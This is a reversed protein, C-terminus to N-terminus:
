QRFHVRRASIRFRFFLGLNGLRINIPVSFVMSGNGFFDPSFEATNRRIVSREVVRIQGQEDLM